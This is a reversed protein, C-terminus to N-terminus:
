EVIDTALRTETLEEEVLAYIQDPPTKLSYLMLSPDVGMDMLYEMTKGQGSQIKEVAFLVPLYKPQEYYHQHLGVIAKNSVIREEGGALVYPCSSMCFAGALVASSLEKDRLERGIKLAEFVLGGPSHLAVIDPAASMSSLYNQFRRFDGEIIKGTVLLVSGFEESRTESFALRDPFQEPMPLEVPGDVTLLTPETRDTRYERRQDGPSVPGSPLEVTERFARPFKAFGDTILLFGAMGLQVLLVIKLGSKPDIKTLFLKM